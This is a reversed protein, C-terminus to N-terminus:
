TSFSLTEPQRFQGRREIDILNSIQIAELGYQFVVWHQRGCRSGCQVAQQHRRAARTHAPEGGLPAVLATPM